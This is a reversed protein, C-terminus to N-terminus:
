LIEQFSFLIESLIFVDKSGSSKLTLCLSYSAVIATMLIAIKLVILNSVEIQNLNWGQLGKFAHRSTLLSFLFLM